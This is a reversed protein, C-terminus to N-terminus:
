EKFSSRGLSKNLIVAWSHLCDVEPQCPDSLFRRLPTKSLRVDVPFSSIERKIHRSAIFNTNSLKKVSTSVVYSVIQAFGGSLSTFLRSGTSTRREFVGKSLNRLTIGWRCVDGLRRVASTNGSPSLAVVPFVDATALRRSLSTLM